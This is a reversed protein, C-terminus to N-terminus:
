PAGLIAADKFLIPITQEEDVTELAITIIPM